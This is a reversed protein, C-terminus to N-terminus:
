NLIKELPVNLFRALKIAIEVTLHKSGNLTQSLYPATIGISKAVYTQKLGKNELEKKLISSSNEKLLTM